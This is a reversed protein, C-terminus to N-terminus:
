GLLGLGKTDPYTGHWITAYQPRPNVPPRLPPSGTVPQIWVDPKSNPKVNPARPTKEAQRWTFSRSFTRQIVPMATPIVSAPHYDPVYPRATQTQFAGPYYRPTWPYATPIVRPRQTPQMPFQPSHVPPWIPLSRPAPQRWIAHHFNPKAGSARQLNGAQRWTHPRIYTRQMVPMATPIVGGAPYHNPVYPRATQTQIAGPYYRPTWPFATPIVRPRQTTQMPFRPYPYVFRPAATASKFFWAHAARLVPKFCCTRADSTPVYRKALEEVINELASRSNLPSWVQSLKSRPMVEDRPVGSRQRRWSFPRRIRRARRVVGHKWYSAEQYRRRRLLLRRRRSSPGRFLSASRVLLKPVMQLKGANVARLITSDQFVTENTSFTFSVLVDFQQENVEQKLLRNVIEEAHAVDQRFYETAQEATVVM